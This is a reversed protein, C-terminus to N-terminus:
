SAEGEEDFLGPQDAERESARLFLLDELAAFATSYKRWWAIQMARGVKAFSAHIDNEVEARWRAPATIAYAWQSDDRDIAALVIDTGRAIDLGPLHDKLAQLHSYWPLREERTKRKLGGTNCGMTSFTTCRWTCQQIETVMTPRMAWDHISNPDNCVFVCDRGHIFSVDAGYGSQCYAFVHVRVGGDDPCYDFRAQSEEMAVPLGLYTTLSDILRRFTNPNIEYLLVIAPALSHLKPSRVPKTTGAANRILIGPSTGHWFDTDSTPIGDGACLDFAIFREADIKNSTAAGCIRGVMKNLLHHKAPTRWGRGVPLKKPM